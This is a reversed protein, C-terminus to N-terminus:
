EVVDSYKRLDALIEYDTKRADNRVFVSDDEYEGFHNLSDLGVTDDIDDHDIPEDYEDTLVGDAYLTLSISEYDYMEGFEEPKIVYPKEVGNVEEPEDTADMNYRYTKLREAYEKLDIQKQKEESIDNESKSDEAFMSVRDRKSFVEKVSAIEEEAIKEYKDKVLKWTVASGIAAGVAFIFVNTITNNM